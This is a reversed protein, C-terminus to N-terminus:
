IRNELYFSNSIIDFFDYGLSKKQLAELYLFHVRYWDRKIKHYEDKNYAKFFRASLFKINLDYSTIGASKFFDLLYFCAGDIKSTYDLWFINHKSVYELDKKFNLNKRQLSVLPICEGLTLIKLKSYAINERECKKLVKALVSVLLITGVSHACLILEYNDKKENEKIKKFLEECFEDMRKDIGKVRDFALYACFVCLRLLWFMAKKSGVKMIIDYGIYLVIAVSISFYIINDIIFFLTFFIYLFICIFIISIFFFPYMGALFANKSLKLFKLFLGTIIFIRFFSFYDKLVSIFGTHWHKKVIDNWILIHYKCKTTQSNILFSVLHSNEQKTPSLKLNSKHIKNYLFLNKKLISYYYRFGRPDYGAIYFFDRNLVSM